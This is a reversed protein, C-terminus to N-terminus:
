EGHVAPDWDECEHTRTIMEHTHTSQGSERVMVQVPASWDKSLLQVLDKSLRVTVYDDDPRRRARVPVREDM